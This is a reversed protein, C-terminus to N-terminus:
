PADAIEQDGGLYARATERDAGIEAPTGSAVARGRDLVVVTDAVRRVLRMNHEVLLMALPPAARDRASTLLDALAIVEDHQLGAAPEDLLLLSARQALCRALDLRKRQGRSLAGIRIHATAGLGVGELVQEAECLARRERKRAPWGLVDGFLTGGMRAHQATLVYEISTTDDFLRTDQLTRAIGVRPRRHEPLTGLDHPGYRIGGASPRVFGSIANLLTTKGAGNPGVVAMIQGPHLVFDVPGLISRRGLRVTLASVRLEALVTAAVADDRHIV